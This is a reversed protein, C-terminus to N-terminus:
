AKTAEVELEIKIDNGLMGQAGTIGFDRRDLKTTASVGITPAGSPGTAFGGLEADLDVDKTIGHVTLAGTIVYGDGGARIGKSTFTWQPHNDVDLFDEGRIHADRGGDNTNVSTADITVSVGSDLINEATVIEGSFKDFRGRVRALGLHRVAFSIESHAPDIQWTAPVYDPTTM